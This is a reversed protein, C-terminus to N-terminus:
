QFQAYLVMPVLTYDEPLTVTGDESPSFVLGYSVNLGDTTKTYWGMFEKGKPPTVQPLTITRTDTEVWESHVLANGNFYVLKVYHVAVQVDVNTMTEVLWAGEENQRVFFTTELYFPKISGDTRIVNLTMNVRASFYTESYQYFKTISIDAFEYGKYNQVTWRDTFALIDQYAKGNVDYFDKLKHDRVNIMYRGFSQAAGILVAEQDETIPASAVLQEAYLHTTPDYIVEMSEGNEDLITVEPQVLLGDLRLTIDRYGHLDDPLYEEVVTSTSAIMHAETDIAVGNIYVTHGPVTFITLSEQRTYFVFVEDLRWDPNEEDDPNFNKLTFEAVKIEDAKIIFKKNGSLGASTEVYTLEKDGVLNDMYTAYAAAGEYETDEEGALEYLEEWDPDVFLSQFVEDRRVNPQSDAAEIREVWDILMGYGYKAFYIFVGIYIALFATFIIRGIMVRKRTRKQSPTYKETKIKQQNQNM